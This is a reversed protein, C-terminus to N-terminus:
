KKKKNFNYGWVANSPKVMEGQPVEEPVFDKLQKVLSAVINTGTEPGFFATEVEYGGNALDFCDPTPVYSLLGSSLSTFWTFPFPSNKKYDLGYQTFIEGPSSGIVLPGIQLTQLVIKREPFAKALQDEIVYYKAIHHTNNKVDFNKMMEYAEPLFEPHPLRPNVKISERTGKLTKVEGRDATALVKIIEGGISRGLKIAAPKGMDKKLSM